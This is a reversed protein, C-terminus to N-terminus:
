SIDNASASAGVGYIEIDFSRSEDGAKADVRVVSKYYTQETEATVTLYLAIESDTIREERWEVPLGDRHTVSEIRVPKGYPSLIRSTATVPKAVEVLGLTVEDPDCTIPYSIMASINIHRDPVLPENTHMRVSESLLGYPVDKRLSITLHHAGEGPVIQVSLKEENYHVSDIELKVGPPWSLTLEKKAEDGRLLTGLRLPELENSAVFGRMVYTRNEGNEFLVMISQTLDGARGKTELTVPMEVTGLSPIERSDTGAVTCGCTTQVKEIRLTDQGPNDLIFTHDIVTGAQVHGFDHMRPDPNVAAVKGSVVPGTWSRLSYGAVMMVGFVFLSFLIRLRQKMGCGKEFVGSLFMPLL